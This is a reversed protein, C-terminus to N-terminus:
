KRRRLFLGGLGLLAITMPEPTVHIELAGGYTYTLGSGFKNDVNLDTLDISIISSHQLDPIHFDFWWLDGADIGTYDAVALSGDVTSILVGGSNVLTGKYHLDAKLKTHLDPSAATGGNSTTASAIQIQGVGDNAGTGFGSAVLAITITDSPLYSPAGSGPDTGQPAPGGVIQLDVSAATAMSSIALVLVLVFLKKM